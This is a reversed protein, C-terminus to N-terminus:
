EQENKEPSNENEKNSEKEKNDDTSEDDPESKIFMVRKVSVAVSKAITIGNLIIDEVIKLDNGQKEHEHEDKKDKVKQISVKDAPLEPSPSTIRASKRKQLQFRELSPVKFIHEKEEKKQTMPEATEGM